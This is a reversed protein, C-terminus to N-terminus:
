AASRTRAAVRKARAPELSAVAVALGAFTLRADRASRVLGDRALAALAEDLEADTCDVRM